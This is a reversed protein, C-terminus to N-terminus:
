ANALAAEFAKHGNMMNYAMDKLPFATAVGEEMMQVLEKTVLKSLRGALIALFTLQNEAEAVASETLALFIKRADERSTFDETLTVNEDVFTCAENFNIGTQDALIEYIGLVANFYIAQADVLRLNNENIENWLLNYISGVTQTALAQDNTNTM